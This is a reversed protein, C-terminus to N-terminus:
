YEMLQFTDFRNKYFRLGAMSDDRCLVGESEARLLYNRTITLPLQTKKSILLPTTFEDDGFKSLIEKIVTKYQKDSLIVVTVGEITEVKVGFERRNLHKLAEALDNPSVYNTGLARNFLCYAEAVSLVGGTKTLVSKMATAFQRALETAYSKGATERTVPDSIGLAVLVEGLDNKSDQDNKKRLEEAIVMLDQAARKLSEIDKLSNSLTTNQKSIDNQVAAQVAAVGVLNSSSAKSIIKKKFKTKVGLNKTPDTIFISLRSSLMTAKKNKMQMSFDEGDASTFEFHAYNELGAYAHSSLNPGMKSLPFEYAIHSQYILFVLRQNTLVLTGIKGFAIRPITLSTNNFSSMIQEGSNLQVGNPTCEIEKWSSSM